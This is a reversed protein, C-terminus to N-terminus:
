FLRPSCFKKLFITSFFIRFFSLFCRQLRVGLAPVRRPVVDGPRVFCHAHRLCPLRSVDPGGIAPAGFTNVALAGPWHAHEAFLCALLSAVAGGMSHGAFCVSANRSLAAPAATTDDSSNDNIEDDNDQEDDADLAVGSNTDTAAVRRGGRRRQVIGLAVLEDFIMHAFALWGKHVSVGYKTSGSGTLGVFSVNTRWDAAHNTGRVALLGVVGNPPCFSSDRSEVGLSHASRPLQLEVFLYQPGNVM